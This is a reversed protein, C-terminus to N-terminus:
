YIFIAVEFPDPKEFIDDAEFLSM